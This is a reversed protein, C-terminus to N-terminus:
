HLEGHIEMVSNIQFNVKLAGARTLKWTAEKSANRATDSEILYNRVDTQSFAVTVVFRKEM